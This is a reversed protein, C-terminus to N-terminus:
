AGAKKLAVQCATQVQGVTDSTACEQLPMEFSANWPGTQMASAAALRIAANTDSLEQELLTVAEPTQIYRLAYVAKSRLTLDGGGDIVTTLIPLFESRGSNGMADLLVMEEPEPQTSNLNTSWAQQISAISRQTTTDGPASQLASGLAWAAGNALFANSENQSESLLFDRTPLSLPAQTTTLAALITGRGAVQCSPNEYIQLLAAQCETTGATALAGVALRFFPSSPGSAVVSPSLLGMLDPIADSYARLYAALEGFLALQDNSSLNAVQTVRQFLKAWDAATYHARARAVTSDPTLALTEKHFIGVVNEQPRTTLSVFTIKYRSDSSFSMQGSGLRTVEEGRVTVPMAGQLDWEMVHKSSLIEPATAATKVYAIKRKEVMGVGGRVSMPDFAAQYAGVTDAQLPFVWNAVLDKLIGENQRDSDKRLKPASLDVSKGSADVHLKLVLPSAEEFSAVQESVQADFGSADAHLVDVFFKGSYHIDPIKNNMGSIRIARDFSYTYRRGVEPRYRIDTSTKAVIDPKVNAPGRLNITAPRVIVEEIKLEPMPKPRMMMVLTGFATILVVISLQAKKSTKFNNLSM